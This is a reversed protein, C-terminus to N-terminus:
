TSWIARRSRAFHGGSATLIWQEVEAHGGALMCQFLACHESDVPIVEAGSERATAMIFTGAAVLCEKNALALRAGRRVAELAPRIGRAGMVANVVVDTQYRACAALGDDGVLVEPRPAGGLLLLLHERAEEDAVGVLDPQFRKVQEAFLSMNRGAVLVSARVEDSLAAVVELTRTGIAGTSGLVAVTQM